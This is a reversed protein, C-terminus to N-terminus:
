PTRLEVASFISLNRFEVCAALLMWGDIMCVCCGGIMGNDYVKFM